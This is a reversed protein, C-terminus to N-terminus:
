AFIRFRFFFRSSSFWPVCRLSFWKVFGFVFFDAGRSPEKVKPSLLFSYRSANCSIAKLLKGERRALFTHKAPGQQQNKTAVCFWKVHFAWVCSEKLGMVLKKGFFHSLSILGFSLFFFWLVSFLSFTNKEGSWSPAVCRSVHSFDNIM